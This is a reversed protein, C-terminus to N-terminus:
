YDTEILRVARRYANHDDDWAPSFDSWEGLMNDYAYDSYDSEERLDLARQSASELDQQKQRSAVYEDWSTSIRPLLETVEGVPIPESNENSTSELQDIYSGFVAARAVNDVAVHNLIRCLIAKKPVLTISLMEPQFIVVTKPFYSFNLVAVAERCLRVEAPTRERPNRSIQSLVLFEKYTRCLVNPTFGSNIM